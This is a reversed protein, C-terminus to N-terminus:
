SVKVEAILHLRYYFTKNPSYYSVSVTEMSEQITSQDVKLKLIKKASNKYETELQEIREQIANMGEDKYRKQLDPIDKINHVNVIMQFNFRVLDESLIKANVFHTQKKPVQSSKGFTTNFISTFQPNTLITSM